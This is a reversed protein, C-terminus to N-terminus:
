DSKIKLSYFACIRNISNEFPTFDSRYAKLYKSADYKVLMKASQATEKTILPEKGTIKSKLAEFRWLLETQWQKAKIYPAGVGFAKAIAKFFSLYDLSHGSLIYAEGRDEKIIIMEIAKVLDQVDVVNIQGQAYYKKQDYVYKFLQSSSKAWDAEGLVVSPRVIAGPLGEAIARWVECEALFKTRAYETNLPSEEWKKTDDIICPLAPRGLAAVSSLHVFFKINKSLCVNVMNATGNINTNYMQKKGRDSFSVVAATHIVVDGPLIVADLGLVDLVDVAILKINLDLLDQINASKRHLGVVEYSNAFHSALNRGVLGNVGSIVIRQV